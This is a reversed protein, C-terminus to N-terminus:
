GHYDSVGEKSFMRMSELADVASELERNNAYAQPLFQVAHPWTHFGGVEEGNENMMLCYLTRADHDMFNGMIELAAVELIQDSEM